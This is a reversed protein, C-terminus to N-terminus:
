SQKEYKIAWDFDLNNIKIKGFKEVDGHGPCIIFGNSINKLFYVCSNVMDKESSTLLDIRGICDSFLFDGTFIYDDFMISTSGISHGPTKIFTFKKNDVELFEIDEYLKIQNKFAILNYSFPLKPNPDLLINKEDKSIYIDIKDRISILENIEGIHDYHGHTYFIIIRDFGNNKIYDLIIMANWSLDVIVLTNHITILYTNNDLKDNKLLM